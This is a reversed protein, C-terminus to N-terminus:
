AKSGGLTVKSVGTESMFSFIGCQQNFFYGPDLGLGAPSEATDPQRRVLYHTKVVWLCSPLKVMSAKQHSETQPLLLADLAGQVPPHFPLALPTPVSTSVDMSFAAWSCFECQLAHLRHTLPFSHATRRFYLSPTLSPRVTLLLNYGYFCPISM